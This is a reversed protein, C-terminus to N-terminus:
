GPRIGTGLVQLVILRPLADCWHSLFKRLLLRDQRAVVLVRDVSHHFLGFLCRTLGRLIVIVRRDRNIIEHLDVQADRANGPGARDFSCVLQVLLFEVEAVAQARHEGADLCGILGVAEDPAM